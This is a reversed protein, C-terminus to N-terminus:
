LLEDKHRRIYVQMMPNVFQWDGHGDSKIVEGYKGLQLQSLSNSLGAQTFESGFMSTVAREIESRRIHSVEKMEAIALLVKNRMKSKTERDNKAADFSRRLMFERGDLEQQVASDIDSNNIIEDKRSLTNDTTRKGISHVTSGAYGAQYTAKEVQSMSFKLDMASWGHDLIGVVEDDTLFPIERTVLRYQLSIDANLLSEVDTTAGAFVLKALSNSDSVADSLNKALDALTIRLENDELKEMDDVFLITNTDIMIDIVDDFDVNSIYDFQTTTTNSMEGSLTAGANLIPLKTDGKLKGQTTTGRTEQETVGQRFGLKKLVQTLFTNLTTTNRIRVEIFNVGQELKLKRLNHKILSTKGVSSEGYVIIQRGVTEFDSFTAMDYEPGRSIYNESAPSTPTFYQKQIKRKEVIQEDTLM